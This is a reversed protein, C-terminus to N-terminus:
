KGGEMECIGTWGISKLAERNCPTPIARGTEWNFITKEEVGMYHGFEGRSMGKNERIKMISLGMKLKDADSLKLRM